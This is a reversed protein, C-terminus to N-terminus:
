RVSRPTKKANSYNQYVPCHHIREAITLKDGDPSAAIILGCVRCYSVILDPRVTERYRLFTGGGDARQPDSAM